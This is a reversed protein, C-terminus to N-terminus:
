KLFINWEGNKEYIEKQKSQHPNNGSEIKIKDIALMTGIGIFHTYHTYIVM